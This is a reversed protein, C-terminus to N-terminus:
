SLDFGAKKLPLSRIREGSALFLANALAPAAAAGGAEGVGGWFGGSPVLLVEVPPMEALTLLRHDSFSSQEVRGDKFTIEGWFLASLAFAVGGQVQAVVSDPNVVGGSDLAVVLRKLEVKKERLSLEAVAATYSGRVETVALGRHLGRPPSTRWGAAKAAVELVAREKATAPLLGLRYDLPDRKAAHALEDIFCERVFPNQSHAAGRWYGVPVATDRVAHEIRLNAISYPQDALAATADVGKLAPAAVRCQLAVPNGAEDLGAKLRVLSAPRYQDHQLDEERTWILNVPVGNLAKAIAVGQATYDQALRRGFGGGVQTRHIYVNEPAVGAAAAAAAHTAEADQTSTWVDVQGDKVVATCSPPELTAHALFPAAYEAEVVRAAQALAKEVEGESKAVAAATNAEFAGSLERRVAESSLGANAGGDWEIKLAQLAQAARWWNDAIVAVYEDMALVRLVGRRGRAPAEDVSRVHGGPVPCQALAAYVMGPLQTDIGYRTRGTVVDPIDMRALPKGALKWEAQPKLAVQKPPALKAAAAAVRGFTTRRGSPAHAIVGGAARCDAPPVGWGQAAAAVLMERAAAGAGRLVEHSERITRSGATSMPGWVRKRRLQENSDAYDVRVRRWDCDLEEAVLQAAATMSGQGMESRAYRIIVQENPLVMVWANIEGRAAQGRAPLHVGLVLMGVTKLFSRRSLASL